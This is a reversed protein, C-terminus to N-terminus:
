MHITSTSIPHIRALWSFDPFSQFGPNICFYDLYQIRKRFNNKWLSPQSSSSVPNMKMKNIRLFEFLFDIINTFSLLWEHSIGLLYKSALYNKPLFEFEASDNINQIFNKVVLWFKPHVNHRENEHILWDVPLM